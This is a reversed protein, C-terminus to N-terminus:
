QPASEKDVNLTGLRHLQETAM